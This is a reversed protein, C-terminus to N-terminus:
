GESTIIVDRQPVAMPVSNLWDVAEAESLKSLEMTVQKMRERAEPEVVDVYRFMWVALGNVWGSEVKGNIRYSTLGTNEILRQMRASKPTVRFMM